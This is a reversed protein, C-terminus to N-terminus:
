SLMITVSLVSIRTYIFVKWFLKKILSIQPLSTNGCIYLYVWNEIQIYGFLWLQAYTNNCIVASPLSLCFRNQRRHAGRINYMPNVILTVSETCMIRIWFFRGVLTISSCYLNGSLDMLPDWMAYSLYNFADLLGTRNKYSIKYPSLSRGCLAIGCKNLTSSFYLVNNWVMNHLYLSMKGPFNGMCAGGLRFSPSTHSIGRTSPTSGM